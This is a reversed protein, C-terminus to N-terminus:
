GEKKCNKSSTYLISWDKYTITNAGKLANKKATYFGHAIRTVNADTPECEFFGINNRIWERLNTFRHIGHDPHVITWSKASSNTEFRGGKPSEKAAATGSALNAHNARNIAVAKMRVRFTDSRKQGTLMKRRHASSCERSCTIKKSSPPALFEAGCWICKKIM